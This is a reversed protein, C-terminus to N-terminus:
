ESLIASLVQAMEARAADSGAHGGEYYHFNMKIHGESANWAELARVPQVPTNWDNVGHFVHFRATARTALREFMARGSPRQTADEIYPCSVGVTEKLVAWDCSALAKQWRDGNPVAALQHKLIDEFPELALGSLTFTALAAATDPDRDLLADYTYLAVLTGESHGRVHLRVSPGFRERAWHLAETACAIGHGLTYRQFIADDRRVAAPDGFPAHIGPKDYTLYAVGHASTVRDFIPHVFANSRTGSGNIILFVDRVPQHDWALYGPCVLGDTSVLGREVVHRYRTTSCATTLLAFCMSTLLLVSTRM